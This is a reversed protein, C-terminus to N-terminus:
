ALKRLRPVLLLVSICLAEAIIASAGITLSIGFKEALSGAALNGFPALGFFILIFLSLVRGRMEDTVHV